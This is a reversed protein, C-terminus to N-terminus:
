RAAEPEEPEPESFAGGHPEARGRPDPHLIIDAAPYVDLVGREARVLLTHAEVLSLSADLDIHAQIHVYPGSARTRLQHVGRVGPVESLRRRIEERAEEPLEHDMLHRSAERFVGYSGWVLWAGVLLAAVADILPSDFLAAGAIGVLAVLNSGVDAFYHARDGSVAVSGTRRLVRTQATILLGTLVLSVVMVGMAWAENDLPRPDLLRAVAERAILAASALVLAAQVLSAFAEAKGHGYRHEADPPVAAYRVAFFTVLSAVLDLGSDALSALVAVSGSLQWVVAKVVILVFAVAVSLATVRRTAATTQEVTQGPRAHAHGASM